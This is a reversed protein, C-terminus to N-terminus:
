RRGGKGIRAHRPPSKKKILLKLAEVQRTQDPAAIREVVPRAKM